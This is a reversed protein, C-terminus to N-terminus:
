QDLFERVEKLLEDAVATECRLSGNAIVESLKDRRQWSAQANQYFPVSAMLLLMACAYAPILTLVVVARSLQRSFSVALARVVSSLIVLLLPALLALQWVVRAETYALPPELMGFLPVLAVGAV